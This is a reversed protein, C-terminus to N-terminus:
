TNRATSLGELRDESLAIRELSWDIPRGMRYKLSAVSRKGEDHGGEEVVGGRVKWTLYWWLLILVVSRLEYAMVLNVLGNQNGLLRKQVLISSLRYSCSGGINVQYGKM